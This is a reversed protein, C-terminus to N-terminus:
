LYALSPLPLLVAATVVMTFYTLVARPKGPRIRRNESYTRREPPLASGAVPQCWGGAFYNNSM